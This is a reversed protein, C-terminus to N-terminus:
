EPLKGGNCGHNIFNNIARNQTEKGLIVNYEPKNSEELYLSHLEMTKDMLRNRLRQINLILIFIVNVAILFLAFWLITM